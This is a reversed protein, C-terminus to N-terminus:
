SARSVSRILSRSSVSIDVIGVGQQFNQAVSKLEPANALAATHACTSGAGDQQIPPRHTRTEKKRNARGSM